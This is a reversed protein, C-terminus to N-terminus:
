PSILSLHPNFFKWSKLPLVLILGVVDVNVVYTVLKCFFNLNITRGYILCYLPCYFIQFSSILDTVKVQDSILWALQMKYLIDPICLEDYLATVVVVVLVDCKFELM